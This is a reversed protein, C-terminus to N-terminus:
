RVYCSILSYETASIADYNRVEIYYKGRNLAMRYKEFLLENKSFILAHYVSISHIWKKLHLDFVNRKYQTRLCNDIRLMHLICFFTEKGEAAQILIIKQSIHFVFCQTPTQAENYLQFQSLALKEVRPLRPITLTQSSSNSGDDKSWQMYMQM